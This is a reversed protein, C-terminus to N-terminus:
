PSPSSAPLGPTSRIIRAALCVAALAAVLPHIVRDRMDVPIAGILITSSVSAELLAAAAYTLGIAVVCFLRRRPFLLGGAALAVMALQWVSRWGTGPTTWSAGAGLTAVARVGFVAVVLLCFWVAPSRLARRRGAPTSLVEQHGHETM